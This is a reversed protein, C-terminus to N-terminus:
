LAMAEIDRVLNTFAALAGTGYEGAFDEDSKMQVQDFDSARHCFLLAQAKIKLEALDTAPQGLVAKAASDAVDMAAFLAYADDTNPHEIQDYLEDAAKLDALSSTFRMACAYFLTNSM